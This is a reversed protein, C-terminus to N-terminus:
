FQLKAGALEDFYFAKGSEKKKTGNTALIFGTIKKLNLKLPPSSSQATTQKPKFSSFPITIWRATSDGKETMYIYDWLDQANEDIVKTSVLEVTIKSASGNSKFWFQIGNCDSLDWKGTRGLLVYVDNESAPTTYKCKVSCKGGGKISQKLSITNRFNPTPILWKKSLEKNSRYSDFNDMMKIYPRSGSQDKVKVSSSNTNDLEKLKINRFDIPQGEAQLAIYGDKLLTGEPLPYGDPLLFGGVVPTSCVMVTDGNVINVIEKGSHVIIDLNVWEGNGYYKSNSNICHENTPVGNYSILTGPTCIGATNQKLKETSGLLQVEIAVPWNQTIDMSQPSQSYIMVGSNRICYRPADRMLEGVFRYEVHLIFSSLKNKYFLHGFRGNFAAFNNYNVKLIGDEVKFGQLPNEGSKYGTVKPIWGDLNKGNFISIWTGDKDETNQCFSRQVTILHLAFILLLNSSKILRNM